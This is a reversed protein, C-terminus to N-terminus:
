CDSISSWPEESPSKMRADAIAAKLTKPASYSAVTVRTSRMPLDRGDMLVVLQSGAAASVEPLM